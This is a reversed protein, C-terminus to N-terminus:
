QKKHSESYPILTDSPFFTGKLFKIKNIATQEM